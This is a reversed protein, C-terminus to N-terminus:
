IILKEHTHVRKTHFTFFVQLYGKVNMLVALTVAELWHLGFYKGVAFTGSLKGVTTIVVIYFLHLSSSKRSPKDHKDVDDARLRLNALSFYLPLIFTALIYNIKSILINSVRGERPMALGVLFSNVKADYGFWYSVYCLILTLVVTAVMHVANMCQGEPNRNNVWQLVPRVVYFVIAMEGVLFIVIIVVEKITTTGDKGRFVFLFCMLLTCVMDNALSARIARRGIESKGLKLETTLRTVIPSSTAAFLIAFVALVRPEHDTTIHIGGFHFLVYTAVTIVVTATIGAYATIAEPGPSNLLFLPEMELGLVFM